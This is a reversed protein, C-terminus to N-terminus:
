RDVLGADAAETRLFICHNSDIWGADAGVGFRANLGEVGEVLLAPKLRALRLMLLRPCRVETRQREEKISGKAPVTKRGTVKVSQTLECEQSPYPHSCPNM